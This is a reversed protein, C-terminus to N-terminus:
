AAERRVHAEVMARTPVGALGPGQVALAGAALAWRCAEATDGTELLRVVFAAAFCDGAGTPEVLTAPFARLAAPALGPAYHLAGSAGRTVLVTAGHSAATQALTEAKSTDEESLFLYTGGLAFREVQSWPDPHPSVRGQGDHTRLLGQLAVAVVAPPFPPVGSLEHYAPALVLADANACAESVRAAPIPSGEQLLLQTRCGAADYTNAYRAALGGATPRVDIGALAAAPFGEPVASVLTVNAGLAVCMRATYLSPGGPAWGGPARDEAVNGAVV